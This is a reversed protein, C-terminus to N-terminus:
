QQVLAFIGQDAPDLKYYRQIAEIKVADLVIGRNLLLLGTGSFVDRSLLMGSRLEDPRLELEMATHDHKPMSFYVYRAVKRFVKQLMPDLKISLGLEVRALAHETTEAGSRVASDIQDAYALIRAGLPIDEGALQDPFGTGNYNEHHHRILIGAPRLAIIHDIAMQGRVPHRSYAQFDDPRMLEPQNTFVREPIGIEGIDHLLGAIRIIEQEEPMLGLERAAEKAMDAVNRAHQYLNLGRMEVLNLFSAIIGNYNQKLQLLVEHLEDAKKRVATTQQLVREKLNVNWDQLEAYQRRIIEQQRLNEQQLGYVRIAERIAHLLDAENWPKSIYRTAGGENMAAITAELDSYGTLLIRIADPALEQSRHLFVTGSMGPMRQDSVIVAVQECQGLLSLGDNGSSAFKAQYPERRVLRQLAQLINPEDDVFLVTYIQAVAAVPTEM